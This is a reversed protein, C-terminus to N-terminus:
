CLNICQMFKYGYVVSYGAKEPAVKYQLTDQIHM